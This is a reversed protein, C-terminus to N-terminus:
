LYCLAELFRPFFPDRLRRVDTFSNLFLFIEGLYINAWFVNSEPIEECFEEYTSHVTTKYLYILIAKLMSDVKKFQLISNIKNTM